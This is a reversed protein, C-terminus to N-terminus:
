IHHEPEELFKGNFPNVKFVFTEYYTGDGKSGMNIAVRWLGIDTTIYENSDTDYFRYIWVRDIQYDLTRNKEAYSIAVNKIHESDPMPLAIKKFFVSAVFVIVLVCICIINIKSSKLSGM